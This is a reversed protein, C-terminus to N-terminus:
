VVNNKPVKSKEKLERGCVKPRNIVVVVVVVHARNPSKGSPVGEKGQCIRASRHYWFPRVNEQVAPNEPSAFHPSPNEPTATTAANDWPVHYTSLPQNAVHVVLRVLIVNDSYEM